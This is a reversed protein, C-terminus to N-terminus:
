QRSSSKLPAILKVQTGRGPQSTVECHGRLYGLRERIHFLGFGALKTPPSGRQTPNFGLGDDEVVICISNGQRQTRINLHSAEAHKVANIVLERTSTFLLVRVDEELVKPRGDDELRCPLGYHKSIHEALWGLAAELGLEHLVPPSLQYALSRTHQITGQILEAIEEAASAQVVSELGQGLGCIKIRCLALSQMIDDHLLEALRRRERQEAISLEAALSRLQQGCALLQEEARKHETIDRCNIVIARVSAEALWNQATCELWRWSGDKHRFRVQGQEMAGPKQALKRLEQAVVPADEPHLREFARLGALEAEHCGLVRWSFGNLVVNMHGEPGVLAIGDGSNQILTQFRRECARLMRNGRVRELGVAAKQASRMIAPLSRANAQSFCLSRRAWELDTTAISKM